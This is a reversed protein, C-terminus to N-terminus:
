IANENRCETISPGAPLFASNDRRILNDGNRPAIDHFPVVKPTPRTVLDLMCLGLGCTIACPLIALVVPAFGVAVLGGWGGVALGATALVLGAIIVKRSTLLRLWGIRHGTDAPDCCAHVTM